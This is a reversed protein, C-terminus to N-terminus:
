MTADRDSFSTQMACGSQEDGSSPTPSGSNAHFLNGADTLRWDWWVVSVRRRMTRKGTVCPLLLLWGRGLRPRRRDDARPGERRDRQNPHNCPQRVIAVKEVREANMTEVNAVLLRNQARGPRKQLRQRQHEDVRDDKGPDRTHRAVASWVREKRVARQQRPEIERGRERGRGVAQHAVEVEDCFH